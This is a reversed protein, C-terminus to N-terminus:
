RTHATGIGSIRTAVSQRIDIEPQHFTLSISNGQKLSEIADLTKQWLTQMQEDRNDRGGYEPKKLVFQCSEAVIKFANAKRGGIYSRNEPDTDPTIVHITVQANATFVIREPEHILGSSQHAPLVRIDTAKDVVAFTEAKAWLANSSGVFALLCALM